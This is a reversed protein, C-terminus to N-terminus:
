QGPPRYAAYLESDDLLSRAEILFQFARKSMTSQLYAVGPSGGTGGKIGIIREVVRLHHYRWALLWHELQIICESLEYLEAFNEPQQYIPVLSRAIESESCPSGDSQLVGFDNRAYVQLLDDLLSPMDARADMLKREYSGKPFHEFSKEDIVGMLIELERFQASQFGSAPRLAERFHGFDRPRMTGLVDIQEVLLKGIVLVRQLLRIADRLQDYRMHQQATSLEHLIQRFWLEYTQHLIIFLLEDHSKGEVRLQQLQLLESVRLYESYTLHGGEEAGFSPRQCPPLKENTTM